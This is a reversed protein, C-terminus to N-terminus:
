LLTPLSINSLALDCLKLSLRGPLLNSFIQMFLEACLPVVVVFNLSTKNQLSIKMCHKLMSQQYNISFLETIFTYLSHLIVNWEAEFGHCEFDVKRTLDQSRCIVRLM